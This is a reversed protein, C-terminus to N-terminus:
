KKLQTNDEGLAEDIYEDNGLYGINNQHSFIEKKFSYTLFINWLIFVVQCGLWILKVTDELYSIDDLNDVYFLMSLFLLCFVYFAMRVNGYKTFKRDYFEGTKRTLLYINLLNLIVFYWCKFLHPVFDLFFFLFFVCSVDRKEICPCIKVKYKKVM